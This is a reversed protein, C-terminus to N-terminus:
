VDIVVRARWGGGAERGLELEHYTASKLEALVQGPEGRLRARLGSSGDLRIEAARALFGGTVAAVIIENLWQVLRDAGDVADLEVTREATAAGPPASETMVDIVAEAGAILLEEESPGWLELALDATHDLQRYGREM